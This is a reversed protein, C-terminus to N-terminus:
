LKLVEVNTVLLNNKENSEKVVNKALEALGFCVTTNNVNVAIIKKALDEETFMIIEDSSNNIKYEIPMPDGVNEDVEPIVKSVEKLEDLKADLLNLKITMLENQKATIESNSNVAKTLEIIADLVKQTLIEEEKEDSEEKSNTEIEDNNNTNNDSTYSNVPEDEYKYNLIKDLEENSIKSNNDVEDVVEDESDNSDFDADYSTDSMYVDGSESVSTLEDKINKMFEESLDNLVVYSESVDEKIGELECMLLGMFTLVSFATENERFYFYLDELTPCKTYIEHKRFRYSDFTNIMYRDVEISESTSNSIIDLLANDDYTDYFCTFIDDLAEIVSNFVMHKHSLPISSDENYYRSADLYSIPIASSNINVPNKTISKIYKKYMYDDTRVPVYEQLLIGIRNDVYDCAYPRDDKSAEIIMNYLADINSYGVTISVNDNGNAEITCYEKLNDVIEGNDSHNLLCEAIIDAAPIFVYGYDDISKPNEEAYRKALDHLEGIFKESDDTYKGPSYLSAVRGDEDATEETEIFNDSDTSDVSESNTIKYKKHHLGNAKLLAKMKSSPLEYYGEENSYRYIIDVPVAYKNIVVCKVGNFDIANDELEDYTFIIKPRTDEYVEDEVIISNKKEAYEKAIRDPDILEIDPVHAHDEDNYLDTDPAYVEDEVIDLDSKPEAGNQEEKSIDYQTNNTIYKESLRISFGEENYICGATRKDSSIVERIGQINRIVSFDVEPSLQACEIYSIKNEYRGISIAKEIIKDRVGLLDFAYENIFVEKKTKKKPKDSPTHESPYVKYDEIDLGIKELYKQPKTEGMKVSTYMMRYIELEGTPEPLWFGKVQICNRNEIIKTKMTSEGENPLKNNNAHSMTEICYKQIHAKWEDPDFSDDLDLNAKGKVKVSKDGYFERYADNVTCVGGCDECVLYDFNKSYKLKGGCPKLHKKGISMEEPKKCRLSVFSEENVNVIENSQYNPLPVTDGHDLLCVDGNDRIGFNKFNEIKCDVLLIKKSLKTLMERVDKKHKKMLDRTMPKVREQVIFTGDKSISYSFTLRKDLDGNYFERYNAEIGHSDGAVKFILNKYKNKKHLLVLRNTGLDKVEYDDDLLMEIRDYNTEVDDSKEIISIIKSLKKDSIFESIPIKKFKDKGM